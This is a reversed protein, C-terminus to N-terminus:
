RQIFVVRRNKDWCDQTAEHCVPENEGKSVVEFNSVDVGMRSIYDKVQDARSEGLAMNYEQTGRDDAHGELVFHKDGAQKLCKINQDLVDRMDPRINSKDFDFMVVGLAVEGPKANALDVPRCDASINAWPDNAKICKCDACTFGNGCEVDAHCECAPAECRQNEPNCKKGSGCDADQSCEPVCREARCVYNANISACDGDAKCEPKPECRHSDMNCQTKPDKKECDSDAKCEVCTQNYCVFNMEAGSADKQCHEDTKCNPWKPACGTSLLLSGAGFVAVTVLGVRRM